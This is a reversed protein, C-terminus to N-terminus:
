RVNLGFERLTHRDGEASNIRVWYLGPDLKSDLKMEPNPGAIARSWVPAGGSDVIQVDMPGTLGNTDLKLVLRSRASAQSIAQESAGRTSHLQIREERDFSDRMLITGTLLVVAVAAFGAALMPRAFLQGFTLRWPAPKRRIPGLPVASKMLAVWEEAKYLRARCPECVLLHDEIEEMERESCVKM